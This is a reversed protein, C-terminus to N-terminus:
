KQQETKFTELVQGNEMYRNMRNLQGKEDFYKEELLKGSMYFTLTKIEKGNEYLQEKLVQGTPYYSMKSVLGGKVYLERMALAGKDDYAVTEGDLKDDHYQGVKFLLGTKPNYCQYPGERKGDKYQFRSVLIMKRYIKLEGELKKNIMQGELMKDGNKKIVKFYNDDDYIM